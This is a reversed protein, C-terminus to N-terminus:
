ADLKRVALVGNYAINNDSLSSATHQSALADLHALVVRYVGDSVSLYFKSSMFFRGECTM